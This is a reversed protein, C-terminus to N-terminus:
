YRFILEQIKSKLYDIDSTEIWRLQQVVYKRSLNGESIVKDM